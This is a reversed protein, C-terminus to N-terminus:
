FGLDDFDDGDDDGEPKKLKKPPAPIEPEVAQLFERLNGREGPFQFLFLSQLRRTFKTEKIIKSNRGIDQSVKLEATTTFPKTVKFEIVLNQGITFNKDCFCLSLKGEPSLPCFSTLPSWDNIM